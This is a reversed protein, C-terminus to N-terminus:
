FMHLALVLVHRRFKTLHTTCPRHLGTADMPWLYMTDRTVELRSSRHAFRVGCLACTRTYRRSIVLSTPRIFYRCQINFLFNLFHVSLTFTTIIESQYQRNLIKFGHISIEAATFFHLDQAPV